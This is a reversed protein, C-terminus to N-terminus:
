LVLRIDIISLPFRGWGFPKKWYWFTHKTRSNNNHVETVWNVSGTTGYRDYLIAHCLEHQVRDSNEMNMRLDKSDHLWFIIEHKGTVGSPMNTNIRQGSTTRYHLFFRPDTHKLSNFEIFWRSEFAHVNIGLKSLVNRVMGRYLRHNLNETNFYYPM